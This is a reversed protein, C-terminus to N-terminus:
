LVWLDRGSAEQRAQSAKSRPESPTNEEEKVGRPTIDRWQEDKPTEKPIGLDIGRQIFDKARRTMNKWDKWGTM